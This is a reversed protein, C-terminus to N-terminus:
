SRSNIEYLKRREAKMIIYFMRSVENKERLIDKM